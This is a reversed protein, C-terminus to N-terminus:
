SNGVNVFLNSVMSVPKAGEFTFTDGSACEVGFLACIDGANAEQVDKFVLVFVGGNTLPLVIKLPENDHSWRKQVRSFCTLLTHATVLCLCYSPSPLEFMKMIFSLYSCTMTMSDDRQQVRSSCALLIRATVHCLLSSSSSLESGLDQCSLVEKKECIQNIKM